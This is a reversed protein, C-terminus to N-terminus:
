VGDCTLYVANFVDNVAALPHTNRVFVPRVFLLIKGDQEQAYAILKVVYGVSQALEIDDKEVNTIGELYVDELCVRADFALCSLIVLKRAADLGEVDSAPNAEAYGLRQADSLVEEYSLGEKTMRTLIYNTTGNLIAMIRSVKNGVLTTRMPGIIPIGGGVAGEYAVDVGMEDALGNIEDWKLALLDKNATVVHKGAKIAAEICERAYETGGMLEVVIQISPDSLIPSMDSCIKEPEIGLAYAKEPTRALVKEVVVEEGLRRIVDDRNKELLRIAGSAVTGCGLVAIKIM